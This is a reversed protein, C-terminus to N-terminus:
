CSRAQRLWARVEELDYRVRRAKGSSSKGIFIRLCDKWHRVTNEAIGLERALEAQKLLKASQAIGRARDGDATNKFTKQM